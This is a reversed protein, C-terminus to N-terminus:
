TLKIIIIFYWNFQISTTKNNYGQSGHSGYALNFKTKPSYIIEIYSYVTINLISCLPKKTQSRWLINTGGAITIKWQLGILRRGREPQITIFYFHARGIWIKPRLTKSFGPMNTSLGHLYCCSLLFLIEVGWGLGQISAVIIIDTYHSLQRNSLRPILNRNGPPDLSKGKKKFRWSQSQPGGM